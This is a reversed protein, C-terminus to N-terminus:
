AGYDVTAPVDCGSPLSVKSVFTVGSSSGTLIETGSFYKGNGAAAGGDLYAAWSTTNTAENLHQAKAANAAVSFTKAEAKCATVKANDTSNGVAFVVVGALIALIAIVVLLEILTFGGQGRHDIRKQLTNM